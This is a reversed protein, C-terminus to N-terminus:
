LAASPLDKKGAFHARLNAIMLDGIDNRTEETAVAIHPTLVVNDFVLLEAPVEPEDDFVDLAAGGITKARLAAILAPTDIVPGRAVNILFGSPGLATLVAPDVLGKTQPSLPCCLVLFDAAKALATVNPEYAYTLESKRRPGQYRAELGLATARKAVARGISGMGVIGVTKGRIRVSTPFQSKPWSLARVFRDGQVIRRGLAFILGIVFDGVEDTLVGPTHAIRLKRRRAAAFDVADLGVGFTAVIELRPLADILAADAGNMSRTAIGRVDQCAERLYAARDPAEWLRRVDFEAALKDLTPQPLPGTVLVVPKEPM